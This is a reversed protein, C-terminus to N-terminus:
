ECVSCGYMGTETLKLLIICSITSALPGCISWERQYAHPLRLLKVPPGTAM